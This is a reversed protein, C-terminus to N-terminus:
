EVCGWSVSISNPQQVPNLLTGVGRSSRAHSTRGPAMNYPKKKLNSCWSRYQGYAIDWAGSRLACMFTDPDALCSPPSWLEMKNFVAEDADTAKLELLITEKVLELGRLFANNVDDLRTTPYLM